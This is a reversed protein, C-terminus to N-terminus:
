QKSQKSAGLWDVVRNAPQITLIIIYFFLAVELRGYPIKELTVRLTERVVM